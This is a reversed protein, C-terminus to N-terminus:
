LAIPFNSDFTCFGAIMHNKFTQIAREAANARPNNPEVLQMGIKCDNKLFKVIAKSAINDLINFKPKFGRSTLYEIKEKFVCIITKDKTNM